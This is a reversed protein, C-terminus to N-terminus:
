HFLPAQGVPSETRTARRNRGHQALELLRGGRHGHHDAADDRRGVLGGQARGAHRAHVRGLVELDAADHAVDHVHDGLVVANAAMGYRVYGVPANRGPMSAPM